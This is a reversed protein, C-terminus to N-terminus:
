LSDLGGKVNSPPLIQCGNRRDVIFGYSIQFNFIFSVHRAFCEFMPLHVGCFNLCLWPQFRCVGSYSVGCFLLRSWDCAEIATLPWNWTPGLWAECDYSEYHTRM